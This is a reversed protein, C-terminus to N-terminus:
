RLLAAWRTRMILYGVIFGAASGGLDMLWDGIEASRGPILMQHLEDAAGLIACGIWLLVLLHPRRGGVLWARAVLVALGFYMGFHAVRDLGHASVPPFVSAPLTTLTLQLLLWAGAALWARREQVTASM